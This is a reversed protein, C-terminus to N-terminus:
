YANPFGRVEITNFKKGDFETKWEKARLSNRFKLLVLYSNLRATMVLRCHSIAAQWHEGVFGLFDAPSMYAPVVPICLTSYDQVEEQQRAAREGEAPDGLGHTEEGERYFHVVGWGIETNKTDLPLLEAKTATGSGGFTPGLSPAARSSEAAAANGVSSMDLTEIRVRGFRWDEIAVQPRIGADSSPPPFSKTRELWQRETVVELRRGSDRRPARPAGCDIVDPKSKQFSQTREISKEKESGTKLKASRALQHLTQSSSQSHSPLEDFISAEPPPLWIDSSGWPGNANADVTPEPTSYLEFKLHYYYQPM